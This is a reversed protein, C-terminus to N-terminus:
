KVQRPWAMVSWGGSRGCGILLEQTPVVRLIAARSRARKRDRAPAARCRCWAIRSGWCGPASRRCPTSPRPRGSTSRVCWGRDHATRVPVACAPAPRVTGHGRFNGTGSWPRASATFGHAPRNPRWGPRNPRLSRGPQESWVPGPRPRRCGRRASRVTASRIRSSWGGSRPRRRPAAPATRGSAVWQLPASSGSRASARSAPMAAASRALITRRSRSSGAKAASAAAPRRRRPAAVVPRTCACKMANQPRKRAPGPRSRAGVTLSAVLCKPSRALM